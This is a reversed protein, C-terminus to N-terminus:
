SKCPTMGFAMVLFEFHGFPTIFASVQRARDTLPIQWYGKSLDLMTVFKASGVQDILDDLRPLPYNENKSLSNVRRYDICPRWKKGQKVLVLPSSWESKSPQIVGIRLMEDIEEKMIKMKEPSTRYFHQRVPSSDGVDVDHTVEKLRGLPGSFLCDYKKCLALVQDARDPPLHGTEPYDGQPICERLDFNGPDHREELDTMPGPDSMLDGLTQGDALLSKAVAICAVEDAPRQSWPRLANAHLQRRKIRKDPFKSKLSHM